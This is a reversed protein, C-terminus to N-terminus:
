NKWAFETLLSEVEKQERILRLTIPHKLQQSDQVYAIDQQTNVDKTLYIQDALYEEPTARLGSHVFVPNTGIIQVLNQNETKNEVQQEVVRECACSEDHFKVRMVGEATQDNIILVAKYDKNVVGDNWQMIYMYAQAAQTTPTEAAPSTEEKNLITEESGAVENNPATEGAAAYWGNAIAQMRKSRRPHSPTDEETGYLKISAQADELSPCGMKRLIFGSFYDADLEANPNDGKNLLDGNFHHAAEHAMISKWGWINTQREITALFDLDYLIFRKDLGDYDKVNLACCNNLDPCQKTSFKKATGSLRTIDAIVQNIEASAQDDCTELTNIPVSRTYGCSKSFNKETYQGCATLLVLLFLLPKTLQTQFSM